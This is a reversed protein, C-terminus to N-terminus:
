DDDENGVHENWDVTAPDAAAYPTLGGSRQFRSPVVGSHCLGWVVTDLECDMWQWDAGVVWPSAVLVVLAVVIASSGLITSLGSFTGVFTGAALAGMLIERGGVKHGVPVDAQGALAVVLAGVLAFAVFSDVFAVLSAAAAALIGLSVLATAVMLWWHRYREDSKSGSSQTM